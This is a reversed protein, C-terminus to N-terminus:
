GQVAGSKGEPPLGAVPPPAGGDAATRQALPSRELADQFAGDIRFYAPEPHCSAGRAIRYRNQPDPVTFNSQKKRREGAANPFRYEEDKRLRKTREYSLVPSPAVGPSSTKRYTM